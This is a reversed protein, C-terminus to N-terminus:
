SDRTWLNLPEEGKKLNRNYEFVNKDHLTHDMKYNAEEFIELNINTQVILRSNLKRNIKIVNNRLFMEQNPTCHAYPHYIKNEDDQIVLNM